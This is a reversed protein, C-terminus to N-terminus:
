IFYKILGRAGQLKAMETLTNANAMVVAGIKTVAILKERM